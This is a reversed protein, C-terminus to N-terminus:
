SDAVAQRVDLALGCDDVGRAYEARTTDSLGSPDVRRRVRFLLQGTALDLLGVRVDHPKEGDLETVASAAGPEDIVFLLHRAQLAARAADLPARAFSVELRELEQHHKAREVQERWGADLFPLGIFADGLRTVHRTARQMRDGAAYASKVRTLLAKESRKEPPDLLCLVFADKASERASQELGRRHGLESLPGRLYVTPQELLRSLPASRVRESVLDGPYRQVEPKLWGPLRQPLALETKSLPRQAGQWREILSARLTETEQDAKRKTLVLWVLTTAISSLAVIRLVMTSRPGLRSGTRRQRGTVSAEVRARLEPSMKDNVLFTPM